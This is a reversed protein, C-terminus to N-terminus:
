RTKAAPTAARSPRAGGRAAALAAEFVKPYTGCRCLNGAVAHRVDDLSPDPNRDLLARVSMVMGPTCYGCMLADKEVFAHQVPDLRDGTALGEITTIARGRADLALMLCSNVPRGDLLVTCGGCAGRDCVEKPGTLDLRNRLASLLTTRPEITLKRAAGNVRLQISVSGAPIRELHLDEAPGAGVAPLVGGALTALGLAPSVAATAAGTGLTKLLDRRTIGRGGPTREEPKKDPM